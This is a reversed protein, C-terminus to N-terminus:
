EMYSRYSLYLLSIDINFIVQFWIITSNIILIHKGDFGEDTKTMPFFFSDNSTNIAERTLSNVNM